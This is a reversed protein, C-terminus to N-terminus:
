KWTRVTTGKFTVVVPRYGHARQYIEHIDAARWPDGPDLTTIVDEVTTMHLIDRDPTAQMHQHIPCYDPRGLLLCRRGDKIGDWTKTAWGCQKKNSM